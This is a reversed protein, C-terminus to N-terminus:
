SLQFSYVQDKMEYSRSFGRFGFRPRSDCHERFEWVRLNGKNGKLPVELSLLTSEIAMGVTKSPKPPLKRGGRPGRSGGQVVWQSGGQSGRKFPGGIGRYASQLFAPYM